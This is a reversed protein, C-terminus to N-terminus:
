WNSSGYVMNPEDALKICILKSQKILRFFRVIDGGETTLGLKLEDVFHATIKKLTPTDITFANELEKLKKLLSSM